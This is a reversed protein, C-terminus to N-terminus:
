SSSEPGPLGPLENLPRVCLRTFLRHTAGPAVTIVDEGANVTEVCVFEQHGDDPLDTLQRSREIWPNWVVTSLSGSKDIHLERHFVPDRVTVAADSAYLRDVEQDIVVPGRQLRKEPSLRGEVYRTGHLGHITIQRVDGVKLYSHLAGTMSWPTPGTNTADLAVGLELGMRVHLRARFRHPWLARTEASDALTLVIDVGDPHEGASDFEWLMTRAFGHAPGGAHAPPGFWPWCVPIGGRIAKGREFVAATSMFLVPASHSPTWEMVHAGQLAIRGTAAPHNVELIPHGAHQETLRITSPLHM